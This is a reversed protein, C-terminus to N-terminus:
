VHFPQLAAKSWGEPKGHLMVFLWFFLSIGHHAFGERVLFIEMHSM